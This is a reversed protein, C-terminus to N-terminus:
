KPKMLGSTIHRHRVHPSSNTESLGTGIRSRSHLRVDPRRLRAMCCINRNRCSGSKDAQDIHAHSEPGNQRAFTSQSICFTGLPLQKPTKSDTFQSRKRILGALRAVLGFTRLLDLGGISHRAGDDVRDTANARPTPAEHGSLRRDLWDTGNRLLMAGDSNAVSGCCSNVERSERTQGAQQGRVVDLPPVLVGIGGRM